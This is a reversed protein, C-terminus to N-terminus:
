LELLKKTLLQIEEKTLRKAQSIINNIISENIGKLYDECINLMQSENLDMCNTLGFERRSKNLPCENCSIGICSAYDDNENIDETTKGESLMNVIEECMQAIRKNMEEKM